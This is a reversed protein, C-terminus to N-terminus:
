KPRDKTTMAFEFQVNEDNAIAREFAKIMTTTMLSTALSSMAFVPPCQAEDDHLIYEWEVGRDNKVIFGKRSKEISIRVRQKM